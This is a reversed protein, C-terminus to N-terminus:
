KVTTKKIRLDTTQLKMKGSVFDEIEEEVVVRDQLIRKVRGFHQGLYTGKTIIYGKGSPEEVLARNRDPSIIIAVLNLQSLAVEQLPTLPPRKKKVKKKAPEVREVETPFLPKFPDRKGAPDYLYATKKEIVEASETGASDTAPIVPKKEGPLPEKRAAQLPPKTVTKAVPAKEEAKKVPVQTEQEPKTKPEIIPRRVPTEKGPKAALPVPEMAQAPPKTLIKTEPAKQEVKQAPALVEQPPKSKPEVIPHKVPTEKGPKTAPPPAEKSITVKKRVRPPQRSPEPESPGECGAVVALMLIVCFFLNRFTAVNTM